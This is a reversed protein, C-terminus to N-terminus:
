EHPLSVSLVWEPDGAPNPQLGARFTGGTLDVRERLGRLGWGLQQDSQTDHAQSAGMPLSNRVTLVVTTETITLDLQCRSRPEAHAMVNDTGESITRSLTRQVTMELADARGPVSIQPDFGNAVLRRSAAAAAATPSVRQTLESVEDKGAPTSPDDRLVRVLLRLETLASDTTSGITALVERLVAANDSTRHGMVQLTTNSLQHAVVDHLERALLSREDARLRADERRVTARRLEEQSRRRSLMRVMAGAGLGVTTAVCLVLVMPLFTHPHLLSGALAYGAVGAVTWGIARRPAQATVLATIVLVWMPESGTGGVALGAMLAIGALGAGVTPRWLAVIIAVYGLVECAIGLPPVWLDGALATPIHIRALDAILLLLFATVLLRLQAAGAMTRARRALFVGTGERATVTTM